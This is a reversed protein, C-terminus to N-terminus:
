HFPVETTIPQQLENSPAEVSQVGKVQSHTQKQLQVV